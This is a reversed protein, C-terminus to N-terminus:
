LKLRLWSNVVILKSAEYGILKEPEPTMELLTFNGKIFDDHTCKGATWTGKISQFVEMFHQVQEADEQKNKHILYIPGPTNDANLGILVEYEHIQWSPIVKEMELRLSLEVALEENNNGSKGKKTFYASQTPESIFFVSQEPFRHVLTEADREDYWNLDLETKKMTNVACWGIAPSLALDASQSIGMFGACLQIKMSTNSNYNNWIVDVKSIGSPIMETNIGALLYKRGELVSNRIFKNEISPVSYEGL